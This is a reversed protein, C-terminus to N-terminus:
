RIILFHQVSHPANTYIDAHTKLLCLCLITIALARARSGLIKTKSSGVEAKSTEPEPESELDEFSREFSIHNLPVNENRMISETM